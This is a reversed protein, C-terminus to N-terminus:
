KPPMVSSSTPSASPTETGVTLRSQRVARAKRCSYRRSRRHAVSGGVRRGSSHRSARANNSVHSAPLSASLALRMSRTRSSVGSRCRRSCASIRASASACAWRKRARSASASTPRSRACCPGSLTSSPPCRSPGQFSSRGIPDPPMPWTQSARRSSPSYSPWTAMLINRTATASPPALWRKARSPCNRARRVCGWM